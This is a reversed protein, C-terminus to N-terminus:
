NSHNLDFSLNNSSKSNSLNVDCTEIVAYNAVTCVIQICSLCKSIVDILM